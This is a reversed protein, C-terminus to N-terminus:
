LGIIPRMGGGYLYQFLQLTRIGFFKAISYVENPYLHKFEGSLLRSLRSNDVGIASAIEKTDQVFPSLFDNLKNDSEPLPYLATIKLNGFINDCFDDIDINLILLVNYFSEALIFKRTGLLDKIQSEIERMSNETFEKSKIALVCELFYESKLKNNIM